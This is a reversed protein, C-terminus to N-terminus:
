QGIASLYDSYSGGGAPAGTTSGTSTSTSASGSVPSGTGDNAVAAESLAALSNLDPLTWYQSPIGANTLASTAKDYIPQYGAQLNKFTLQALQYIQQRQADSLVGGQSAIKNSYVSLADALTQGGTIVSVQADTIVGGATSM